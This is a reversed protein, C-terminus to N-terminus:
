TTPQVVDPVVLPLWLNRTRVYSLAPLTPVEAIVTL